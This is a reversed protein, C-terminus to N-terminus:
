TSEFEDPRPPIYNGKRNRRVKKGRSGARTDSMSELKKKVMPIQSKDHLLLRIKQTSGGKVVTVMLGTIGARLTVCKVRLVSGARSRNNTIKGLYIVRVADMKKAARIIPTADDTATTHKGGFKGGQFYKSM